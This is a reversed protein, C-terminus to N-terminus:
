QDICARAPGRLSRGLTFALPLPIIDWTGFSCYTKPLDVLLCLFSFTIVGWFSSVEAFCSEPSRSRLSRCQTGLKAAGHRHRAQYLLLWAFTVAHRDRQVLAATM